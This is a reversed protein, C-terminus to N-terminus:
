GGNAGYWGMLQDDQCLNSPSMDKDCNHCTEIRSQDGIPSVCLSPQPFSERLKEPSSAEKHAKGTHIKLGKVTKFSADCQDCQFAEGPNLPLQNSESTSKKALFDERRKANRKLTSPSKRKLITTPLTAKGEKTELSFTFNSGITISIKFSKGHGALAQCFDLCQTTLSSDTVSVATM